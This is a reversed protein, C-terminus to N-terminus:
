PRMLSVSTHAWAIKVACEQLMMQYALPHANVSRKSFANTQELSSASEMRIYATQLVLVQLAHRRHQADSGSDAAVRDHLEVLVQQRHGNCLAQRLVGNGGAQMLTGM